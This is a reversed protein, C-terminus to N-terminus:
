LVPQSINLVGEIESVKTPDLTLNFVAYYGQDHNKIRQALDRTGWLDEHYIEGGNSSILKRVEDLEKKSGEEGLDPPIILMLEYKSGTQTQTKETM